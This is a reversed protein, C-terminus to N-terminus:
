ACHDKARLILRDIHRHMSDNVAFSAVTGVGYVEFGRMDGSIRHARGRIWSAEIGRIESAGIGLNRAINAGIGM